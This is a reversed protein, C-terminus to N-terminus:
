AAEQQKPEAPLQRARWPAVIVPEWLDTTGKWCLREVHQKRDNTRYRGCSERRQCWGGMCAIKM